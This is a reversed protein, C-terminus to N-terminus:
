TIVKEERGAVIMEFDIVGMELNINTVRIRYGYPVEIHWGGAQRLLRPKPEKKM